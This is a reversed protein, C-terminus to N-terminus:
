VQGPEWLREKSTWWLYKKKAFYVKFHYRLPKLIDFFATFYFSMVMSFVFIEGIFVSWVHNWKKKEKKGVFSWISFRRCLMKIELWIFRLWIPFFFLDKMQNKVSCCLNFLCFSNERFSLLTMFIPGNWKFLGRFDEM